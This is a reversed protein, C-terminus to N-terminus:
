HLVFTGPYTCNLCTSMGCFDPQYIVSICGYPLWIVLFWHLVMEPIRVDFSRLCKGATFGLTTMVASLATALLM